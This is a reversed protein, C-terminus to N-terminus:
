IKPQWSPSAGAAQLGILVIVALLQLLLMPNAWDSRAESLFNKEVMRAYALTFLVALLSMWLLSLWPTIDIRITASVVAAPLVLLGSFIAAYSRVAPPLYHNRLMYIWGSFILTLASALLFPGYLLGHLRFIDAIILTSLPVAFVRLLSATQVEHGTRNPALARFLTYLAFNILVPLAWDLSGLSWYAYTNLLFLIAERVSFLRFASIMWTLVAFLIGLSFTQFVIEDASKMTIKLLIYATLVPVFLNDSGEASVAEVGTLLVSVILASLICTLRPLDTMLLLTIQLVQFTILWFFISGELSKFDKDGVRYIIRGYRGGVLAACADSVSLVMLSAVYLWPRGEAMVFLAAVAVPYYESGHSARRVKGLCQLLAKKEGIGLIGAFGAAVAAVTWPSRVLWPLALCGIGVFLHVFKRCWEPEPNGFRAWCEAIGIVSGLLATIILIGQLEASV